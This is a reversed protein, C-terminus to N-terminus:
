DSRGNVGIRRGSHLWPRKYVDATFFAEIKAYEKKTMTIPDVGEVLLQKHYARIDFNWVQGSDPHPIVLQKPLDIEFNSIDALANDDPFVNSPIVIPLIQNRVCNEYFITAFSRAMVVRFGFDRLAWVAHERSSGCGFNHGTLLIGVRDMAFRNLVFEPDEIRQEVSLYRWGAFLSSAYNYGSISRLESSPIIQDTDINDRLISVAKGVYKVFPEAM